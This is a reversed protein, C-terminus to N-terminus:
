NIRQNDKFAVIFAENFKEKVKKLLSLAEKKDNTEGFTYKYLGKEFYIDVPKLGKLQSSNQSLKKSSSLFQIKYIIESKLLQDKTKQKTETPVEETVFDQCDVFTRSEKSKKVDPKLNTPYNTAYGRKKDLNSKYLAFANYISIALSNVGEDSNLFKEQTPNCIFDLEVLVSPMSNKALVWFGAQQVGNNKRNAVSVFEKQIYSALRVSQEVHKNQNIEFIIYSESSTPDFGQYKTTYDKELEMVSNERMAVELNAETKHMGLTYTSAGHITTRNKNKKDVSNTHISIFLDGKAQNAIDTRQQLTLYVDTSRTYVLKVNPMNEKLLKKLQLAVALNIDKENSFQGIAGYDKGGHGPDIVLTFDKASMSVNLMLFAVLCSIIRKVRIM